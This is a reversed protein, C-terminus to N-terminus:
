GLITIAGPGVPIVQSKCKNVGIRYHTVKLENQSIREKCSAVNHINIAQNLPSMFRFILAIEKLQFGTITLHNNLARFQLYM